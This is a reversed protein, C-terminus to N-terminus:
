HGCIKQAGLFIPRYKLINRPNFNAALLTIPLFYTKRDPVIMAIPIPIDM